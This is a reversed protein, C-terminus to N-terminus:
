GIHHMATVPQLRAARLAPFLSALATVCRHHARRGARARGPEVPLHLHQQMLFMQVAQPCRRHRRRQRGGRHLAGSCRARGGDGVLGLLVAELLFLWLVKRRQM